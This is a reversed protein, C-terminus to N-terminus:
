SSLYGWHLDEEQVYKKGLKLALAAKELERGLYFAQAPDNGIDLQGLLAQADTDKVFVQNNFIYIFDRDIFVRYNRDRV